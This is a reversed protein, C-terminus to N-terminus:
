ICIYINEINVACPQGWQPVPYVTACWLRTTMQLKNIQQCGTPLPNGQADTGTYIFAHLMEVDEATTTVINGGSTNHAKINTSIALLSTFTGIIKKFGLVM